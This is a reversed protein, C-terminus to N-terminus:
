NQANMVRELDAIRALVTPSIDDRAAPDYGDRISEFTRLAQRYNDQEAYSDGLVIYARALWYEPVNDHELLKYVATQVEAFRGKDYLDQIVFVASEAGEQTSPDKALRAFIAAAEDRRSTALLSKASCYDLERLLAADAAEGLLPRLEGAAEITEAYMRARFASRLMGTAAEKRIDLTQAPAEYVAKYGAWADKYQEMSYSLDSYHRMADLVFGGTGVGEDAARSYYDRAKDKKGLARYCEGIYFDAHALHRGKPYRTKFNELSAVAGSWNGTLFVQEASRFYMDEREDDTMQGTQGIAALYDLYKDGEGRDRYISEIALLASEAYSTGPAGEVVEKFSSLAKKPEDARSYVMGLELLTRAVVTQDTTSTRLRKLVRVASGTDGKEFYSRGLAFLTEDYYPSTGPEADLVRELLAIRKADQGILGCAVADQYIVYLLDSGQGGAAIIDDYRAIAGKYDKSYFDCDARRVAADASRLAHGDKLYNDFWKAAKEYEGARFWAYAMDYPIQNGEDRGDLASITYLNMLEGAAEPFKEDHYLAQALWYRSLQNLPEERGTYFNVSKLNDSAQRWAGSGILQRARLYNAKVYNAQAQAGLEDINDYAEIAGQYDHNYLAALAIYEYIMDTKERTPYRELYSEFVSPDHNLDFSLKAYNFMADEAISPDFPLLSAEKFAQLASVKDKTKIYGYGMQYSAIQGLSDTRETMRSYNDIAGKYDGVNYLVSGAFFYDGRSMNPNNLATKRYYAEAGETDGLILYAESILRALHPQREAPASEYLSPGSGVVFDYDKDLFACEVLYYSSIQEFRPDQASLAFWERAASFEGANYHIYGLCYRSPATYDTIRGDELYSRFEQAAADYEGAGFASFARRFRYDDRQTPYLDTVDIERLLPLAAAYDADEFFNLAQRYRIQPILNSYPAEYVYDEALAEADSQRLAIACLVAYGRAQWDGEAALQTFTRGAEAYMGNDYLERARAFAEPAPSAVPRVATSQASRHDVQAGAPFAAALLAVTGSIVAQVAAKQLIKM